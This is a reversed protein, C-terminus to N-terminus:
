EKNIREIIDDIKEKTLNEYLENDVLMVPATGCSALCEAELLTIRGDPTTEGSKISLKDTIYEEVHEAGRLACSLTRCLWIIHKGVPKTFFMTYFTAVNQVNSPPIGLIEAAEGMSDMSLWGYENQVEHLIPILASQRTQSKSLVENIRAKLDESFPM